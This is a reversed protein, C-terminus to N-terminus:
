RQTDSDEVTFFMPILGFSIHDRGIGLDICPTRNEIQGEHFYTYTYYLTTTVDKIVKVSDM